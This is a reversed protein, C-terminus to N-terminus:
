IEFDWSEFFVKGGGVEALCVRVRGLRSVAFSPM